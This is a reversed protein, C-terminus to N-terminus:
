KEVKEITTNNGNVQYVRLESGFNYYINGTIKVYDGKKLSAIIDENGSTEVIWNGNLEVYSKMYYGNFTVNSKIEEVRSIVEVFCGKYKEEFAVHNSNAIKGLEGIKFNETTGEKNVIKETCKSNYIMNKVNLGGIVAVIILLIIVLKKM